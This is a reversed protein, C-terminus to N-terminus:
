RPRRATRRPLAPAAAHVTTLGSRVLDGITRLASLEGLGFTSALDGVTCGHGVAVLIPWQAATVTVQQDDGLQRTLAVLHDFSPVVRELERWETLLSGAEELLDRVDTAEGSEPAGEDPEFAFAGSGNRMLDCLIEPLSGTAVRESTASMVAGDRLWVVGRGRDGEVQLYGTKGAAALLELVDAIGFTDLTGQLPM